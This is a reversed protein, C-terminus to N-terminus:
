DEDDLKLKIQYSQTGGDNFFLELTMDNKDVDVVTFPLPSDSFIPLVFYLTSTANVFSWTDVITIREETPDCKTNGSEFEFNKESDRYFTYSDDAWCNNSIKWFEEGDDRFALSRLSWTKSNEGSFIKTYDLPIPEGNDTCGLLTSLLLLGITKLKNM